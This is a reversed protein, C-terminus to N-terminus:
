VTIRWVSDIRIEDLIDENIGTRAPGRRADQVLEGM